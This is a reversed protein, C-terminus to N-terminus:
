TVKSGVFRSFKIELDWTNFSVNLYFQPHKYYILDIKTKVDM